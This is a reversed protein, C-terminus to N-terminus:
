ALTILLTVSVIMSAIAVLSRCHAPRTPRMLDGNRLGAFRPLDSRRM